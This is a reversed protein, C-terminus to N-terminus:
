RRRGRRKARRAKSRKRKARGRLGSAVKTLKYVNGTKARYTRTGGTGRRKSGRRRKAMQDVAEM